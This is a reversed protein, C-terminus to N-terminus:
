EHQLAEQDTDQAHSTPCTLVHQLCKVSVVLDRQKSCTISAWCFLLCDKLESLWRAVMIPCSIKFLWRRCGGRIETNIHSCKQLLRRLFLSPSTERTGRLEPRTQSAKECIQVEFVALDPCGPQRGFFPDLRVYSAWFLMVLDKGQELSSVNCTRWFGTM